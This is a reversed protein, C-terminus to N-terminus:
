LTLVSLVGFLSKVFYCFSYIFMNINVLWLYLYTYQVFFSVCFQECEYHVNDIHGTKRKKKQETYIYFIVIMWACHFFAAAAMIMLLFLSITTSTASNCGDTYCCHHGIEAMCMETSRVACDRLIIGDPRVRKQFVFLPIYEPNCEYRHRFRERVKKKGYLHNAM